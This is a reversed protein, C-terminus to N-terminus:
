KVASVTLDDFKFTVPVNTATGSLFTAVGVGGPAQLVSQSDTATLQWSSPETQSTKWVKARLTTPSTGTAQIRIQLTAGSTYNFAAGLNVPTGLTTETNSVVKLLYLTLAGSSSIKVKARYDNTGITRAGASVFAGGGNAIPDMSVKVLVDSSTSNVSELAVRPGMGATTARIQGTGNAVSFQSATGYRTWDGGVDASGWGNTTTRGFTDTALPGAPVTATVTKTISDTRGNDDTVTLTVRYDGAAPYNHSPRQQTSTGGDGFDWAYKEVTGDSDSSDSGDFSVALEDVSFTFDAVPDINAVTTVTHTIVNTAGDDDTVTLTVTFDGATAYSHNPKQETSTGGDGFNWAYKEVTGDSDSSGSGDFSVKLKDVSSTFAAVPDANAVTTLTHNVTNTAGDNDTVTLKVTFDGVTAYTHDPKQETSTGGDGFDWAYSAITGDSDSSSSGDFSVKLKNVNSTFAAVPDANAVTAVTHSVTNTAGDNDTVTLKVTFDGVTAYTHDPKQETSTGGDGFDWAYSVISGDTDSSQSGDFAVDLKDVASTFAASPAVNPLQGGGKVFHDQIEAPSLVKSYVAIEDVSGALYNSTAGGWTRDGGVRWYGTHDVAWTQPNTGILQNDVYMKMGAPGQQAVLYHWAGDNYSKASDIVNAEGTWVGFRLKGDNLMYVHRDYGSSLGFKSTGIGILKGGQTTTTKFWMEESYILPGFFTLDSAVAGNSGNLTIASDGAVGVASPVGRTFGGNYAGTMRNPGSDNAVTGTSESLRWYLDPETNYVAAGYADAPVSAGLLNRGSDVYHDRIQPGTLVSPYIAVDDIDGNFYNSTPRNPWSSLNDGGIRWYGLYAQASTTDTRVATKLGDVYLMMGGSGLTGVVHHWQNDNYSKTTTLVRASGPYVGFNLQGNNSMYVHRDYSSSSGSASGGFGVIKGGTTTSTKFWAEVSFTNAGMESSNAAVLGTTSGNFSSANNSDGVIAGAAGRVVGSSATAPNFGAWDTVATGSNEGLRWYNAAHDDLVDQAYTSIEGDASVVVTVTDSRAENGFPDKAFVRYRYTQGPVLNTDLYGMAPRKWESSLQTTQYVPNAIDNNRILQYSLLENDRDWNAMWSIKATGRAFSTVTPNFKSQTVEPGVRNPALASVAYRVLGQQGVGGATPFEGGITVYDANGAVNWGAQGQGTFTGSQLLPLWKLLSPSPNGVWNHYGLPDASLSGTVAKTFATGYHQTWPTTQPFGDPLNGCYHAHSSVYIVDGKPYTGYTDGHCDEIWVVNTTNWDVRAVGELVGGTGFVFGSVYVSDGDNSLGTIASNAGANRVLGNANFNQSVATVPDVSALGYGPNSSGNMTTFAGGIVIRSGDPSMIMSHVSGGQANPAWPLLAGDSAQVAAARSRAITGVATLLGGIYV